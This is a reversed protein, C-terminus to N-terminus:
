EFAVTITRGVVHRVGLTRGCYPGPTLLAVLHSMPGDYTVRLRALKESFYLEDVAEIASDGELTAIIPALCDRSRPGEVSVLVQNATQIGLVTIIAAVAADGVLKACADQVAQEGGETPDLSYVAATATLAETMNGDVGRFVRLSVAAKNRQVNTGAPGEEIDTVATGIIVADALSGRAFRGGLEVDGTVIEILQAQSYYEGAAAAGQVKLGLKALGERLVTESVGLDPAAVICDAGIREGVLLLVTPPQPLRPLMIAAVDRRLAAERVQADIEVRTADDSPDHRLLDYSAIYRSANRLLARFPELDGSAVIAELVKVVVEHKANEIATQRAAFGVGEAHGEMRVTFLGDDEGEAVCAVGSLFLAFTVKFAQRPIAHRKM